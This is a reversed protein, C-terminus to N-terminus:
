TGLKHLLLKQEKPKVIKKAYNTKLKKAFTNLINMAEDVLKPYKNTGMAM